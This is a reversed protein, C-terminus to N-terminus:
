INSSFFKPRGLYHRMISFLQLDIVREPVMKEAFLGAQKNCRLIDM